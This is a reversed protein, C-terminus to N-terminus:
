PPLSRQYCEILLYCAVRCVVRARAFTPESEGLQDGTFRPLKLLARFTHCFAITAYMKWESRMALVADRTEPDMESVGHTSSGNDLRPYHSASTSARRSDAMTHVNKTHTSTHLPSPVSPPLPLHLSAFLGVNCFRQTLLGEFRGM